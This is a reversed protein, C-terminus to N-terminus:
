QVTIYETSDQGQGNDGVILNTAFRMVTCSEIITIRASPVERGFEEWGGTKGIKRNWGGDM